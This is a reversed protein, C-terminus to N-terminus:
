IYEIYIINELIRMSVTIGCTSLIDALIGSSKPNSQFRNGFQLCLSRGFNKRMILNFQFSESSETSHQICSFFNSYLFQSALRRM